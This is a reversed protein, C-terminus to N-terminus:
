DEVEYCYEKLYDAAEDMGAYFARNLCSCGEDIKKLEILAVGKYFQADKNKPDLRLALNLYKLGLPYDERELAVSGAYLYAPSYMADLEISKNFSIFASDPLQLNYYVLGLYTEIEGDDEFERARLFDAKSKNFENKQLYLTGRWKLLQPSAMQLEIAEELNSLQKDEDGMERYIFAKLLKPRPAEPFMPIFVDLDGLANEFEGISYYCVARKYFAGYAEKDKLKSASISKTFMKIAGKFDEHKYLTDGEALYTKWKPVQSFSTTFAFSLIGICFVTLTRKRLAVPFKLILGLMGVM